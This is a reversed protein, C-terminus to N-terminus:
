RTGISDLLSRADEERGAERATALLAERALKSGPHRRLLRALTAFAEDFHGELRQRRAELLVLPPADAGALPRAKGLAETLAPLDGAEAALSGLLLWADARGPALTAGRRATAVAERTRGETGEATALLLVADAETPAATVAFELERAAGAADGRSLLIQGLRYRAPFFLPSNAVARRYAAVAGGEDGLEELAQGLDFEATRSDPDLVLSKALLERADEARGEKLRLAGLLEWPLGSRPDAGAARRFAAEAASNRGEEVLSNGELSLEEAFVHSPPHARLHSLGLVVVALGAQLALDSVRRARATEVLVSAGLGAFLAVVPVVPLRYRLGALVLLAPLAGAALFVLPLAPLSRERVARVLGVAALAALLGFGPLIRLLLSHARFFAFSQNDRPEEAQTLWAAKSLLARVLGAPDASARAVTKRLFFREEGGPTVGERYPEAALRDWAGNPRANQVGGGSPDNGIWLNITGFSRVFVFRGAARSSAVVVPALVVGASAVLALVSPAPRRWARLFPIAAAAGAVYLLATPRSASALGLLLGALLAGSPGPRAVLLLLSGVVLVLLLVEEWLSVDVFAVPGSVALLLGAALGARRGFLRAGLLSLLVATGAGVAAQAARVAPLSGGLLKLLGALAYPYAPGHTPPSPWRPDGAALSTAWVLNERADLQPTTWLALPSLERAVILRVLLAALFIAALPIASPARQEAADRSMSSSAYGV